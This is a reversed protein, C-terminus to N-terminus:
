PFIWEFFLCVHKFWSPSYYQCNCDCNQDAPHNTYIIRKYTYDGYIVDYTHVLEYPNCKVISSDFCNRKLWKCNKCYIRKQTSESVSM